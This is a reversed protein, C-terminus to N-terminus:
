RKISFASTLNESLRDGLGDDDVAHSVFVENSQDILNPDELFKYMDFVVNLKQNSIVPTESNILIPMLNRDLGMHYTFAQTQGMYHLIGEFSCFIYGDNWGWHLNHNILSLPHDGPWQAPDAHNTLSDVGINFYIGYIDENPVNITFSNKGREPDIYAYYIDTQVIENNSNIVRIDSLIYRFRTPTLENNASNFYRGANFEITEGNFVHEFEVEIPIMEVEKTSDDSCASLVLLILLLYRM